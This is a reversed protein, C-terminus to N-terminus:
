RHFDTTLKKQDANMRAFGRYTEDLSEGILTMLTILPLTKGSFSVFVVVISEPAAM